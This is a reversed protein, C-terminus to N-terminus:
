FSTLLVLLGEAQCCGPVRCSGRPSVRGLTSPHWIDGAAPEGTDGSLGSVGLLEGAEDASLRRRRFRDLADMFRTVFVGWLASQRRM